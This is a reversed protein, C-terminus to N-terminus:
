MLPTLIALEKKFSEFFSISSLQEKSVHYYKSRQSLNFTIWQDM